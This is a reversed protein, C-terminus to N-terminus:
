SCCANLEKPTPPAVELYHRFLRIDLLPDVPTGIALYDLGCTSSFTRRNDSADIAPTPSALKLEEPRM